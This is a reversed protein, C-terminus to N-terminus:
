RHEAIWRSGSGGGYQFGHYRHHVMIRSLKALRIRGIVSATVSSPLDRNIGASTEAFM